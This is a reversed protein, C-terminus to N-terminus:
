CTAVVVRLVESFLASDFGPRVEICAAGVRVAVGPDGTATENSKRAGSIGEDVLEVCAWSQSEGAERAKKLWYRGRIQDPTAM